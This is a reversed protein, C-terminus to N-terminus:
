YHHKHGNHGEKRFAHQKCANEETAAKLKGDQWMKVTNQVTGYAGVYVMIGMDQFMMIARRGLGASLMTEVGEKALLQPPYGQGGMHESTNSIVRVENSETDVITYTPVRGFHEGIQENLGQNGMTPIALKMM